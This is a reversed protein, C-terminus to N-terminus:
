DVHRWTRRHVVDSIVPVSVGFARALARLSQGNASESRINRVADEDLKANPNDTGIRTIHVANGSRDPGRGKSMMDAINEKQTGVFMHAPNVCLRNDCNHCVLLGDAIPGVFQEYAWRHARVMREPRMLKFFGYGNHTRAGLWLWCADAGGSMDVRSWFWDPTFNISDM